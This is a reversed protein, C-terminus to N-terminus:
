KGGLYRKVAQEAMGAAKALSAKALNHTYLASLYAENAGAVAEQAQVVELTDAVGAALRDRSQQLQQSALAISSQAVQVQRAATNVDLLSTRVESEIQDRLDALQAQRQEVLADNELVDARVRGGQFIPVQLSAAATFTGHSNGPTRGLVGYDGDFRLTPYRGAAAASRALEASKVLAQAQQYDARNRYADALAQELTVPPLPVYSIEDTTELAQGAPLGIARALTLKQKELDNEASLLRQEQSQMEVQARLVDIQAAVGAQELDKAQQYVANATDLQARVVDVRSKSLVDQLYLSTVVLVVLERTDKYSLQAAKIGEDASRTSQIAKWDFLRQSYTARADFVSFPGVIPSIGPILDIPFGFAALNTQQVIESTHASLHPLLDSLKRLREARAARTGQEGLVLGLNQRLGRDIADSLSIRLTDGTATGSPVSGLVATQGQMQSPANAPTRSQEQEEAAPMRTMGPLGQAGVSSCISVSGFFVILSACLPTKVQGREQTQL